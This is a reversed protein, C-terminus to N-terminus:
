GGTLTFDNILMGQKDKESLITRSIPWNIGLTSDNWRICCESDPCYAEDVKYQVDCGDCLAQFGHAFGKPVYIWEFCDATLEFATWQLYTSSDRRLDVVVDYVAGRVCRFLKTQSYPEKQYHLGRITGKKITHSFNDQVFVDCIGLRHFADQRYGECFWGRSDNHHEVKIKLVGNLLNSLIKM